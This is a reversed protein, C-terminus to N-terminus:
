AKQKEEAEDELDGADEIKEAMAKEEAELMQQLVNLNEIANNIPIGISKIQNGPIQVNSLINITFQVVDEKTYTGTEVDTIKM